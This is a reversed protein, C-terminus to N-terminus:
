IQRNGLEVSSERSELCITFVYESLGYPARPNPVTLDVATECDKEMNAYARGISKPHSESVLVPRNLIIQQPM